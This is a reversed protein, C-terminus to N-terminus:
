TNASIMKATKAQGDEEHLRNLERGMMSTTTYTKGQCKQM